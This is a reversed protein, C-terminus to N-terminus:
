FPEDLIEVAEINPIEIKEELMDAIADFAMSMGTNLGMAYEDTADHPGDVMKLYEERAWRCYNLLKQTNNIM